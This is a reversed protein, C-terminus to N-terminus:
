CTFNLGKSHVAFIHQRLSSNQTYAKKCFQCIFHAIGDCEYKKHRILNPKHKYSKGCKACKHPRLDQVPLIVASVSFIVFDFLNLLEM